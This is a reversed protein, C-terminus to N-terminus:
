EKTLQLILKAAERYSKAVANSPEFVTVPVREKHAEKVRVSHGVRVSSLPNEPSLTNLERLFAQTFKSQEKQFQTVLVGLSRINPCLDVEVMEQVLRNVAKIGGIAFESIDTPTLYYNSITLANITVLNLAPPLDILVVDVNSVLDRVAFHLLHESKLRGAIERDMKSMRADSPIVALDGFGVRSSRIVKAISVGDTKLFLDSVTPRSHDDLLVETTNAQGDLDIVLVKKKHEMAFIAALEITTTTKAVGGKENIISIVATKSM